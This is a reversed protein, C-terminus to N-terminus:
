GTSISIPAARPSRAPTTSSRRTSFRNVMIRWEAQLLLSNQDRFRWSTFGRLTSGGGVVAAHLVADASRRTSTTQALGRLSLVWAERLIPFHQIAEYDVQRFGFARRKDAYDHVHRRLLRRAAFLGPSTRWDFGVHRAFASVHDQRWPRAADGAHLKPRSRHSTSGEAPRQAWQSVRRRRAADPRRTPWLTLTASRVAASLPLEHSRRGVHGDRHRLLRGADGRALRRAAVAHRPPSCRPAVFEAEVRKYGSMTYSGRVDICNYPSVHHAYGAGLTFGRYASELFPHWGTHGGNLYKQLTDMLREGKRPVYPHLTPLKDGQATEIVAGRTAPEPAQAAAKSTPMGLLAAVALSAALRSHHTISARATRMFDQDGETLRTRAAVIADPCTRCWPAGAQM